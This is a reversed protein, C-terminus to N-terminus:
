IMGQQILYLWATVTVVSIVTSLIVTSSARQEWVGYQQAIVFVNTATPLCAMLVATHLWVAPLGPVQSVLWYMLLPHVLLKVPVLYVLDLPVRKLPRMAATVGMAFLACPAAAASLSVLLSEVPAPPVYQVAAAAVGAATAIMFPHSAIRKLIGGLLRWASPPASNSDRQGIAMLSPALTFHMANDFCFILAVPVGAAPGLAALALPPGMYGINGYAAAFGQITAVPLKGRRLMLTLTLGLVFILFTGLTTMAFFRVNTFESLPTKSLLRFFLAPLSVYVLFFNLWDLGALPLRRWRACLYGILVISFLPLVLALVSKM